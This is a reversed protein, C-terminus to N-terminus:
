WGRNCQLGHGRAMEAGRRGKPRSEPARRGCGDPARRCAPGGWGLVADALGPREAGGQPGQCRAEEISSDEADM